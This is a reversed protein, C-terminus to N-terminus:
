KWAPKSSSPRSLEQPRRPCESSSSSTQWLLHHRPLRLPCSELQFSSPTRPTCKSACFPRNTSQWPNACLTRPCALTFLIATTFLINLLNNIKYLTPFVFIPATELRFSDRFHYVTQEINSNNMFLEQLLRFHKIYILELEVNM